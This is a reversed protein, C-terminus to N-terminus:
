CSAQHHPRNNGQKSPNNIENEVEIRKIDTTVEEMEQDIKDMRLIIQHFDSTKTWNINKTVLM